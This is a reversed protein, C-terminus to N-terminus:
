LRVDSRLGGRGTHSIGRRVTVTLDMDVDGDVMLSRDVM